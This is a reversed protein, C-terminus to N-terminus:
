AELCMLSPALSVTVLCTLSCLHSLNGLANGLSGTLQNEQLRLRRLKALSYLNSPLNGNLNNGDLSLEVLSRCRSLGSPLEGSLGNGSFRLVQVPTHCLASSNIGGSFTNGSIDLVTLKAAAPFSPHPGDFRNFSINVVEISHFGDENAPFVSSFLNVSLDLVRLETLQGLEM